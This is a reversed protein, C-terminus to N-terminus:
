TGTKRKTVIIESCINTENNGGLGSHNQTWCQSRQDKTLILSVFIEMLFLM